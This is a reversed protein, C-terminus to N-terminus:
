IAGYGTITSNQIRKTSEAPRCESAVTAVPDRALYCLTQIFPRSRNDRRATMWWESGGSHNAPFSTIM